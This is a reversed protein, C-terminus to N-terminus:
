AQLTIQADKGKALERATQAEGSVREIVVHLGAVEASCEGRVQVLDRIHASSPSLKGLHIRLMAPTVSDKVVKEKESQMVLKETQTVDLLYSELLAPLVDLFAKGQTADLVQDGPMLGEAALTPDGVQLARKLDTLVHRVARGTKSDSRVVSLMVKSQLMMVFYDRTGLVGRSTHSATMETKKSLRRARALDGGFGFTARHVVRDTLNRRSWVTLQSLKCQYLLYLQGLLKHIPSVESIVGSFQSKTLLESRDERKPVYFYDRNQIEPRRSLQEHLLALVKEADSVSESTFLHHKTTM